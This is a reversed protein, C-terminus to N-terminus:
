VGYAGKPEGMARFRVADPAELASRHTIRPVRM